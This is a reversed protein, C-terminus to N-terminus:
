QGGRSLDTAYEAAASCCGEMIPFDPRVLHAAQLTRAGHLASDGFMSVMSQIYKRHLSPVIARRRTRWIEGDAPILGSHACCCSFSAAQAASHLRKCPSLCHALRGRCYTSAKYLRLLMEPPRSHCGLRLILVLM